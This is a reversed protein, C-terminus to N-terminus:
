DNLCELQGSRPNPGQKGPGPGTAPLGYAAKVDTNDTSKYGDKNLIWADFYNSPNQAEVGQGQM